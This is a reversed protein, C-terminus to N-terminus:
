QGVVVKSYRIVKDHLTYGKEVVDVVKGKLKDEPAPIQTIAEHSSVDFNDGAKCEIPKLGNQTLTNSLKNHILKIGEIDFKDPQENIQKIARDFDDVVPLIAKIVEESAFKILEIREKANRKRFNEFESYLRLHKDNLENYKEEWSLEKKEEKQESQNEPNEEKKKSKFMEEEQNLQEEAKQEEENLKNEEM